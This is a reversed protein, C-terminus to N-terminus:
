SVDISKNLQSTQQHDVLCVGASPLELLLEEIPRPKEVGWYDLAFATESNVESARAPIGTYLEAAGIAGAISDLDTVLHGCFIANALTPPIYAKVLPVDDKTPIQSLFEHAASQRKAFEAEIVTMKRTVHYDNETTNSSM